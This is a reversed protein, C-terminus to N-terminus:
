GEAWYTNLLFGGLCGLTLWLPLGYESVTLLVWAVGLLVLLSVRPLRVKHHIQPGTDFPYFRQVLPPLCTLLVGPWVLQFDLLLFGLAVATAVSVLALYASSFLTKIM